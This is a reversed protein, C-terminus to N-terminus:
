LRVRCSSLTLVTHTHTQQKGTDTCPLRCRVLSQGDLCPTDHDRAQLRLGGVSRTESMLVLMSGRAQCQRAQGQAVPLYRQRKGAHVASRRACAHRVMGRSSVQGRSGTAGCTSAHWCCADVSSACWGSLSSAAMM